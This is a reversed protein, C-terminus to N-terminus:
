KDVPAVAAAGAHAPYKLFIETVVGDIAPGPSNIMKDTVRAEVVGEWVLQKRAADVVDINATGVKYHTTYVDNSYAPWGGYMGGRYGYYGMGMSSGTSTVDTQQRTSVNVNVLLDPTATALRYGRAEMERSIASKFHGSLITGNGARDTGMPSVFGYTHYTAFNASRDFDAHTKPGSVCATLLGMCALLLTKRFM